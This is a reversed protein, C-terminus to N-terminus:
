EKGKVQSIASKSFKLEVKEAVRLMVTDDKIATIEGHLGGATIVRDGKKLAELMQRRRKAQQQQPRILLLYFVGLMVVWMLVTPLLGGGQAAAGEAALFVGWSGSGTVMGVSRQQSECTGLIRGPHAQLLSERERPRDRGGNRM